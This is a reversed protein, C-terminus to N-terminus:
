LTSRKLRDSNSKARMVKEYQAQTVEFAGLYYDQTLTVEHQREDDDSGEESPPAGMQFTGKPILVLKMGISNTVTKPEQAEIAMGFVSCWSVIAAGVFCNRLFRTVM